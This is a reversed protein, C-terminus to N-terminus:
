RRIKRFPETIKWSNSSLVSEYLSKFKNKEINLYNIQKNLEKNENKLQKILDPNLEKNLNHSLKDHFDINYQDFTKKDEEIQVNDGFDYILLIQKNDFVKRVIPKM